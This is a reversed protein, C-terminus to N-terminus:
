AVNALTAGRGRGKHSLIRLGCSVFDFAQGFNTLPEAVGSFTRDTGAPSVAVASLM